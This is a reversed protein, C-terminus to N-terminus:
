AVLRRRFQAATLSRRSTIAVISAALAIVGLLLATAWLGILGSGDAAHTRVLLFANQVPSVGNLWSLWGTGSSSVALAVTVVILLVSIGRGVNGLWAALAHNALVFSVALGVLFVSLMATPGIGLGLVGGGIAGLLLGQLAVVLTPLGVTRAWLALSSARSTVVTSPVARVAVFSLMAGVWLGLVLLLSVLGTTNAGAVGGPAAVPNTVVESLKQRDAESYSPLDEAGSELESAFTDLGKNLEKTGDALKGLGDALEPAGDAAKTVGAAFQGVGDVYTGLGTGFQAVGKALQSAGDALQDAGDSLQGAGDNLQSVGDKLQNIGEPLAGVQDNLQNIGDLLASAGSGLADANDVIPQAQTVITNAGAALQGLGGGLQKPLEVVVQGVGDSLQGAGGAVQQAAQLLTVGAQPDPTNLAQVGAGAGAKFGELAAANAGAAFTQALMECTAPDEVPCQFAASVGAGIQGAAQQATEDGSALGGLTKNVTDLGASVGSTGQALGKAGDILPAFQEGIVEESVGAVVQDLGKALEGVGLVVDKSGRAFDPIGGLLQDAGDALQGVGEVLKPAQGAFEAVGDNLEGVGSALTDVGTAFEGAGKALESSGTVLQGSGNKLQSGGSSLPKAADALQGLGDALQEGGEAAQGAGKALEGSGDSLQTVADMIEGFQDGVTNLGIFVNDLYTETLTSNITSTALRAVQEGVQADTIPANESVDVQITAQSAKAADNESFSTAAASFSEPITVVVSFEGSRLGDRATDENALMWSIDSGEDIIAAALQRGMPVYQDQLTVPEDLNVIAANVLTDNWPKALGLLVGVALIPVLGLILVSIWSLTRGSAASEPRM